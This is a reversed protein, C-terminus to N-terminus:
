FLFKKKENFPGRCLNSLSQCYERFEVTGDGNIDFYLFINHKAEPILNKSFLFKDLLFYLQKETITGCPSIRFFEQRLIELEEPKFQTCGVETLQFSKIRVDIETRAKERLKEVKTLTPTSYSYIVNILQQWNYMSTCTRDIFKSNGFDNLQLIEKELLKLISFREGDGEPYELL